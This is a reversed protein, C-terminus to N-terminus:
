VPRLPTTAGPPVQVVIQDGPRVTGGSRVVAMVGARRVLTGDPERGLVAQMLGPRVGDLQACPNRLGTLEVMAQEGLRLVAGTPLSLLDIGATLVNEGMEGPRLHLGHLALQEHLEAGLLHVQRLNEWDPHVRARSRHQVTQGFHADGSVGHGEVLAIRQRLPKRPGHKSGAAVAVVRQEVPV